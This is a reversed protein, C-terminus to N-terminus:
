SSSKRPTCTARTRRRSAFRESPGILPPPPHGKHTGSVAATPRAAPKPPSQAPRDSAACSDSTFVVNRRRSPASRIRAPPVRPHAAIPRPASPRSGAARPPLRGARAEAPSRSRREGSLKRVREDCEPAGVVVGSSGRPEGRRLVNLGFCVSLPEEVPRYAAPRQTGLFRCSRNTNDLTVASSALREDGGEDDCGVLPLKRRARTRQESRRAPPSRLSRGPM